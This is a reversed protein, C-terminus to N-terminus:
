VWMSGLPKASRKPCFMGVSGPAFASIEHSSEHGPALGSFCILVCYLRLMVVDCRPTASRLGRRHESATVLMSRQAM